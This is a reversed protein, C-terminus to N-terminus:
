DKLRLSMRLSGAELQAALEHGMADACAKAIALGLGSHCGSTRSQDLRWLRDFMLPLDEPELEPATNTVAIMEDKGASVVISAGPPSYEVANSFLNALVTRLLESDTRVRADAPIEFRTALKRETAKGVFPKWETAVFDALGVEEESLKARRNELRALRLLNEITGQMREAIAKLDAHDDASVRDPWKLAVEAMSRLEAVPTRLEHALDAGFRREREFGAELRAMLDNLRTAISRLEEPLEETPFRQQLSEADIAAAQEGVVELPKLGSSLAVRVLLTAGFAAGLGTILMGGLLLRLTDDIERRTKAVVLNIPERMGGREGGGEEMWPPRGRFGRKRGGEREGEMREPNQPHAEGGPPGGFERPRGPPPGPVQLALVRVRTGDSLTADRFAGQSTFEAPPNLARAGLSRSRALPEGTQRWASFYVEGQEDDFLAFEAGRPEPGAVGLLQARAFFRAPGSLGRLEGALRSELGHRVALYLGTGAVGLVLGLGPLLWLLLRARISKM